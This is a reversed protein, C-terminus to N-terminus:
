TVSYEANTITFWATLLADNFHSHCGAKKNYKHWFMNLCYNFCGLSVDDCFVRASFIQTGNQLM